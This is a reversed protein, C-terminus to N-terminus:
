GGSSVNRSYKCQRRGVSNEFDDVIQDQNRAGRQRVLELILYSHQWNLSRESPQKILSNNQISDNHFFEVDAAQAIRDDIDEEFQGVRLERRQLEFAARHPQDFGLLLPLQEVRKASRSGRSTLPPDTALEIM